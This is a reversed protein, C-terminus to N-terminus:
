RIDGDIDYTGQRNGGFESGKLNDAMANSRINKLTTIATRQTARGVQRGYRSAIIVALNTVFLEDYEGPLLITDGIDAYVYNTFNKISTIYLPYAQDPMPYVRIVGLTPQPDYFLSTPRGTRSSKDILSDYEYMPKVTVPYDTDNIRIYGSYIDVPRGTDFDGATGITYSPTNNLLSLASDRQKITFNFGDISLSNLFANFKRLVWQEDVTALTKGAVLIGVEIASDNIIDQVTTM